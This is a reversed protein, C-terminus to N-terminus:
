LLCSVHLLSEGYVDRVYPHLAGSSIRQQVDEVSGSQMLDGFQGLSHVIPYTSPCLSFNGYPYRRDWHLGIKLFSWTILIERSESIADEMSYKSRHRKSKKQLIYQVSRKQYVGLWELTTSTWCQTKLTTLTSFDNSLPSEQKFASTTSAQALTQQPCPQSIITTCAQHKQLLIPLTSM